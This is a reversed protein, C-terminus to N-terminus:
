SDLSYLNILSLSLCLHKELAQLTAGRFHTGVKQVVQHIWNTKKLIILKKELVCLVFVECCYWLTNDHVKIHKNLDCM